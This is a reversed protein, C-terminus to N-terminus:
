LLWIFDIRVTNEMELHSPGKGRTSKPTRFQKVRSFSPDKVSKNEIIQLLLSPFVSSSTRIDL